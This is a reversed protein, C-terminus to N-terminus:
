VYARGAIFKTLEPPRVKCNKKYLFHKKKHLLKKYM